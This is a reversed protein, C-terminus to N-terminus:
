LSNQLEFFVGKKKMLVDFSGSEIKSGNALVVIENTKEITTLRHAVILSTLQGDKLINDIATQVIRESENDLASTAEDLILLEPKRILARAIAIRQKQGGSLRSGRKGVHTDYGAPQNVIFEHINALKAAEIVQHETADKLGYKINDRITLDFLIPEQSVVSIKSRLWQPKLNAINYGDFYIGPPVRNSRLEDESYKECTMSKPSDSPDYFRQVLQLLTSKGGGSQSVFACSTGREVYHTFNRLVQCINRNRYAFSVNNFSINAEVKTDPEFGEDLSIRTKRDCTEYHSKAARLGEAYVTVQSILRGLDQSGFNVVIYVRFIAILTTQGNDYLSAGLSLIAAFQLFQVSHALGFMFAESLQQKMYGRSRVKSAFKQFFYEQRNLSIVTGIHSICEQAVASGEFSSSDNGDHESKLLNITYYGVFMMVPVFALNTLALLWHHYFSVILIAVLTSGGALFQGFGVGTVDSIQSVETALRSVLKGPQNEQRDFWAMEQKLLARFLQSRLSKVVAEGVYGMFYGQAFLLIFRAFAFIFLLIATDRAKIMSEDPDIFILRFAEFIEAYVIGNAPVALGCLFSVLIGALLHCIKQNSERMVRRFAETYTITQAKKWNEENMSHINELSSGRSSTTIFSSSLTESSEDSTEQNSEDNGKRVMNSYVGGLQMLKDHTGAEIIMGGGFVVIKDAKRVTTLRHAVMLVTRGIM